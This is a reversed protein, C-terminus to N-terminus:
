RKRNAGGTRGKTAWPRGRARSRSKSSAAGVAQLKWLPDEIEVDPLSVQGDPPSGVAEAGSADIPPGVDEARESGNPGSAEIPAEVDEPESADIAPGVNKPRDPADARAGRSGDWRVLRKLTLIAEQGGHFRRGRYECLSTTIRPMAGGSRRDAHLVAGIGAKWPRVTGEAVSLDMHPLIAGFEGEDLYSVVMERRGALQLFEGVKQLDRAGPSRWIGGGNVEHRMAVRFVAVSFTLGTRDTRSVEERLRKELYPQNHLGTM